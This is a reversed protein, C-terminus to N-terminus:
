PHPDANPVEPATMRAIEARMNAMEVEKAALQDMAWNRQGTVVNLYAQVAALDPTVGM